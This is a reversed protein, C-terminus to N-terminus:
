EQHETIELKPEPLDHVQRREIRAPQVTDLSQGCASCREFRHTVTRDPNEVM